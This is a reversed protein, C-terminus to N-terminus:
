LFRVTETPLCIGEELGMMANILWLSTYNGLEEARIPRATVRGSQLLEARRTGALLPRDPTYLGAADGLVINSFSTDTLYGEQVFVVEDCGSGRRLEELASRDAYKYRYDLGDARVVALTAIRRLRYPAFEVQRVADDYVVRCKVLGTRMEEPVRTPLCAGAGSGFFHEMTAVMRAAHPEPRRFEGNRVRIVESFLPKKM